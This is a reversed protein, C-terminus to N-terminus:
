EVISPRTGGGAYRSPREQVLAVFEDYDHIYDDADYPHSALVLLMADSSYRDQTGWTLAPMFLGVTPRDLVTEARHEGDDVIATVSGRMCILFQECERHAHTGRVEGDPIGLLTFIRETAFPLHTPREGVILSGNEGTILALEILRVGHVTSLDSMQPMRAACH